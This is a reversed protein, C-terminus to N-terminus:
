FMKKDKNKCQQDFSHEESCIPCKQKSRCNQSIHGFKQCHFCRIPYPIFEKVTIRKYGLYLHLPFEIASDSGFEIILSETDIKEKKKTLNKYDTFKIM